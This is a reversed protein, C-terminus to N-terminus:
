YSQCGRSTRRLGEPKMKPSCSARQDGGLSMRSTSTRLNSVTMTACSLALTWNRSLGPRRSAVPIVSYAVLFRVVARKITWNPLISPLLEDSMLGPDYHLRCRVDHEKDRKLNSHGHDDAGGSHRLRNPLNSGPLQVVDHLEHGDFHSSNFWARDFSSSAKFQQRRWRLMMRASTDRSTGARSM